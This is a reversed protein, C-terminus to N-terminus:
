RLTVFNMIYYNRSCVFSKFVILCIFITQVYKQALAKQDEGIPLNIAEKAIEVPGESKSPSPHMVLPEARENNSASSEETTDKLPSMGPETALKRLEENVRIANSLRLQLTDREELLQM